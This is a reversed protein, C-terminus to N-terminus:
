CARGHVEGAVDDFGGRRAVAREDLQERSPARRSHLKPSTAAPAAATAARRSASPSRRPSTTIVSTPLRGSHTRAMVAHKRSPRTTSGHVSCSRAFSRASRRRSRRAAARPRRRACRPCARRRPSPRGPAGPGTPRREVVAGRRRVGLELGVVRAQDRERGAGRALRLRDEVALAVQGPLHQLRPVPEVGAGAVQDPARRRRAPRLRGAVHEHRRPQAARRRQQVVRAEVRVLPELQEVALADVQEAHGGGLVAHDGLPRRDGAQDVQAARDGGALREVGLHQAGPVLGGVDPDAVAVPLGLGALEGAHREADGGAGARHADREGAILSSTSSPSSTASGVM